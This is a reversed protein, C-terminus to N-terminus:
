YLDNYKGPFILNLEGIAPSIKSHKCTLISIHSEREMGFSNYIKNTILQWIECVIFSAVPWLELIELTSMTQSQVPFKCSSIM